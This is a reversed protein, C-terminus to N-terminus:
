GAGCAAWGLGSWRAPSLRVVGDGVRRGLGGCRAGRHSRRGGGGGVANIASLWAGRVTFHRYDVGAVGAMGAWVHAVVCGCGVGPGPRPGSGRGSGVRLPVELRRPRDHGGEAFGAREGAGGVEGPPRHWATCCLWPYPPRWPHHEALEPAESRVRGPRFWSPLPGPSTVGCHDQRNGFPNPCGRAARQRAGPRTPRPTGTSPRSAAEPRCRGVCCRSCASGAFGYSTRVLGRRTGTIRREIGVRTPGPAETVRRRGPWGWLGVPSTM